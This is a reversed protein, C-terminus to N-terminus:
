ADHRYRGLFARRQGPSPDFTAPQCRRRHDLARRWCARLVFQADELAGTPILRRRRMFNFPVAELNMLLCGSYRHSRIEGAEVLDRQSDDIRDDFRRGVLCSPSRLRRRNNPKEGGSSVARSRAM